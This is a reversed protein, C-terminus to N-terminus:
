PNNTVDSRVGPRFPPLLVGANTAERYWNLCNSYYVWVAPYSGPQGVHELQWFPTNTINFNTPYYVNTEYKLLPPSLCLSEAVGPKLLDEYSPNPTHALQWANTIFTPPDRYYTMDYIYLGVLEKTATIGVDVCPHWENTHWYRYISAFGWFDTGWNVYYVPVPATDGPFTVEGQSVPHPLRSKELMDLNVDAAALWNTAQQYMQAELAPSLRIQRMREEDDAPFPTLREMWELQGYKFDFKYDSTELEGALWVHLAALRLKLPINTNCINTWYITDPYGYPRPKRAFEMWPPFVATNQLDIVTIPRNIPLNLRNALQNVKHLMVKSVGARWALGSWDCYYFRLKWWEENWAEQEAKSLPPPYGPFLNPQARHRSRLGYVALCVVIVAALLWLILCKRKMGM